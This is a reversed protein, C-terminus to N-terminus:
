ARKLRWHAFQKQMRETQGSTFATYCSDYSDDMYNHIPDLGSRRTCTGKGEPRGSTPVSMFPTDDVCDGHGIRVRRSRTRWGPYINIDTSDRREARKTDIEGAFTEQDFRADSTTTDLGAL